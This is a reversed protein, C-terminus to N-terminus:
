SSKSAEAPGARLAFPRGGSVRALGGSTQRAKFPSPSAPTSASSSSSTDAAAANTDTRSGFEAVNWSRSMAFRRSAASSSKHMASAALPPRSRAMERCRSRPLLSGRSRIACMQSAPASTRSSDGSAAKPIYPPSTGDAPITVATPGTPPRATINMALSADTLPPVYWGVVTFFCKRACAMAAAKLSGQTESTSEPPANRGSCASTNGSRSCKPRM